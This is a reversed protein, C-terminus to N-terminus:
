PLTVQLEPQGLVIYSLTVKLQDQVESERAQAGETM